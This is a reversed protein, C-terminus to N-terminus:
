SLDYPEEGDDKRELRPTRKASTPPRQSSLPVESSGLNAFTQEELRARKAATAQAMQRMRDDRSDAEARNRVAWRTMSALNLCSIVLMGMSLLVVGLMLLQMFMLLMAMFPLVSALLPVGYVFFGGFGLGWGALRLREVLGDDHAWRALEELQLCLLPIGFMGALLGAAGIIILVREGGAAPKLVIVCLAALWFVLWGGQLVRNIRRIWRFERATESLPATSTRRPLTVVWVGVWWAASGAIGAMHGFPPKLAMGISRGFLLVLLLIVCACIGGALLM